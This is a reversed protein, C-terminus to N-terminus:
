RQIKQDVDEDARHAMVDIATETFPYLGFGDVHGFAAHCTPEHECENCASEIEFSNANHKETEWTDKLRQEGLRIANMYHAVLGHLNFADRGSGLPNDMDIVFTLRSQATSELSGYFGTTCAFATRLACIDDNGQELVSQLLARDLGQLRAFDEILLILEKGAAKLSQRIKTMIEVLHDGSLNLCRTIAADTHRNIIAVAKETVRKDQGHLFQLFERTPAAPRMWDDLDSPIDDITFERRKEAPSYGDPKEFVHEALEAAFCKDNLFHQDRIYPDIFLGSLGNILYEEEDKDDQDQLAQYSIDNKLETQINNLILSRQASVTLTTSGAGQVMNLYQEQADKPLRDILDRVIDRLNTKSKQVFLIERNQDRKIRLNIWRILHSKGSGSYGIIPVLSYRPTELFEELVKEASVITTSRRNKDQKRIPVETHLARFYADPQADVDPNIIALADDRKWCVFNKM